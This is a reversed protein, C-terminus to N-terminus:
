RVIFTDARDADTAVLSAAVHRAEASPSYVFGGSSAVVVEGKSTVGSGSYSLPDGDADVGIVTGAVVGSAADPAGVVASGTPATNAPAIAV